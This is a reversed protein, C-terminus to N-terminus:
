YNFYKVVSQKYHCKKLDTIDIYNKYDIEYNVVSKELYKIARNKYDDDYGYAFNIYYTEGTKLDEVKASNYTNGNLSDFWKAGKILFRQKDKNYNLLQTKYNKPIKLCYYFPIINKAKINYYHLVTIFGKKYDPNNYEKYNSDTIIETNCPCYCSNDIIVKLDDINNVINLGECHLFLYVTIFDQDQKCKLDFRSGYIPDKKLENLLKFFYNFQKKNYYM